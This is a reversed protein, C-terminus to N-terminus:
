QSIQYVTYGRHNIIAPYRASFFAANANLQERELPGIIVYNVGHKQLLTEAAPGGRYIAMVDQERDKHDIGHTWLHGPYGMLAQRGTLAAVSNHFPGNLLMARAPTRQRIMEAVELEPRGFVVPYEIPSLGRLVDLAGSLILMITFLLAWARSAIPKHEWMRALAAAVLPVSALYWYLLVKINDWPWPALLMVNPLIFCVLFPLYFRRALASVSGRMVLAFLLIILFAGANLLWFVIPSMDDGAEWGFHPKFLQARTPTQRLWLAQPLALLGAPVFFWLWEFSFFLLALPASIIMVSFFGHAHALPMLGALVGAALLYRKRSPPAPPPVPPRPSPSVPPDSSLADGPEGSVVEENNGVKEETQGGTEGDGRCGTEVYRWWLGFIMAALPVGFLLSRQPVLLTTVISGWRLHLDGNMTYTRPLHALFDVIGNTSARLDQFFWLFGFGGNFIFLVPAIRAALASGTLRRTLAEILLIIALGLLINEVFFAVRWDAGARIFFATLFDILFPYTFPLGDYVPNRPPINEGWAFSSIVSFHFPLDGYNNAPSTKLGEDGLGIVRGFLLCLLALWVLHYVLGARDGLWEDLEARWTTRPTKWWLLGAGALTILATGAISRANLGLGLSLLFGIWVLGLLGTVSGAAFRAPFSTRDVVYFTLLYGCGVAM